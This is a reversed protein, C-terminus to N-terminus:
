EKVVRAMPVKSKEFSDQKEAKTGFDTKFVAAKFKDKPKTTKKAKAAERKAARARIEDRKKDAKSRYTSPPYQRVPRAFGMAGAFDAVAYILLSQEKQSYIEAARALAKELAAEQDNDEVVIEERIYNSGYGNVFGGPRIQIVTFMHAHEIVYNDLDEDTDFHRMLTPRIVNTTPTEGTM